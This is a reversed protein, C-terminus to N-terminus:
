SLRIVPQGFCSNKPHLIDIQWPKFNPVREYRKLILGLTQMIVYLLPLASAQTLCTSVPVSLIARHQLPQSASVALRLASAAYPCLFIFKIGPVGFDFHWFHVDSPGLKKANKALAALKVRKM